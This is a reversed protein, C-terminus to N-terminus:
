ATIGAKQSFEDCAESKRESDGCLAIDIELVDRFPQGDVTGEVEYGGVIALDQTMEIHLLINAGWMASDDGAPLATTTFEPVRAIGPPPYGVGTAIEGQERPAEALVGVEVVKANTIRTAGVKTVIVDKQGKNRVLFGLTIAQRGDLPIM